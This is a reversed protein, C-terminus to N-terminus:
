SGEQSAAKQMIRPAVVSYLASIFLPSDNLSESRWVTIGRAKGYERFVIDIDYLIEVHDSVFGVPAILVDRHGEAALEDIRSEVRPGLWPESTMGQSQFAVCWRRLGTAEAVLRATESVQEEYPDGEAVTRAPVSHATLIM